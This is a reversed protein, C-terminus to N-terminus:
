LAAVGGDHSLAPLLPALGLAVSWRAVAESWAAREALLSLYEERTGGFLREASVGDASRTGVVLVPDGPRFGKYRVEHIQDVGSEDYTPADLQYDRNVVRVTGDPALLAFAPTSASDARWTTSKGARGYRERVFIALGRDAAPAAPDVRGALAVPRGPPLAGLAIAGPTSLSGIESALRRDQLGDYWSWAGLVAGVM